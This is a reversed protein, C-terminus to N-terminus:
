ANQIKGTIVKYMRIDLEEIPLVDDMDDDDFEVGVYLQDRLVRNILKVADHDDQFEGPIHMVLDLNVKVKM